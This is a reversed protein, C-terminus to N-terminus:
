PDLDLDLDLIPGKVITEPVHLSTCHYVPLNPHRPSLAFPACALYKHVEVARPNHDRRGICLIWRPDQRSVETFVFCLTRKSDAVVNVHLRRAVAGM